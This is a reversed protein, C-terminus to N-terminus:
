PVRSLRLRVRATRWLFETLSLVLLALLGFLAHDPALYSIRLQQRPRPGPYESAECIRGDALDRLAAVQSALPAM